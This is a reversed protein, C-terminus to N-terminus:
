PNSLCFCCSVKVDGHLIGHKHLYTMGKTIDHIIGLLDPRQSYKHPLGSSNTAFRSNWEARRLYDSLSGHNMYPSILFWPPNGEASAGYLRVINRDSLSKWINVENAFSETPTSTDLVKIAVINRHWTGKYVSSFFGRGVLAGLEVEHRILILTLKRVVLISNSM